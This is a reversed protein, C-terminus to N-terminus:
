GRNGSSESATTREAEECAILNTILRRLMSILQAREDDTFGRTAEENGKELMLTLPELSGLATDSLSFRVARGDTADRHRTVFGSVEMRKLLAAMAPQEISCREVLQKQSLHDEEALRLIVPVQGPRLGMGRGRRELARVYLRSAWSTLHGVSQSRQYM